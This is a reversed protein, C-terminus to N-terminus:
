AAAARVATVVTALGQELEDESITLAPVIRLVEDHPGCTLVVVGDDLARRQAQTATEGDALEIGIMLGRGRVDVVGPVAHLEAALSARAAAGLAGARPVLGDDDLVDLTALGAACSVPNGGFTTGHSGPAWRAFLDAGALIGGLPLGSAIGKAFLLVDPAVGFGEAAWMTGTRGVGCQVEDFVLLIGHEDCRDRLGRLWAVPPVVYGGEGLVPEVVVAAVSSPPLQAHLIEDLGALAAATAAGESGHRLVSPYPAHAVSPLLPEYGTRYKAKSTTLSTGGITRGHFAGRFAVIGPRGTVRRALKIAGDVAEAGTNCFFVQPDRLFPASAALREALRVNVTHHAVVSTHLLAGAQDRIAAVIRPHCHGTATVGIGSSLDLWRQGDVDVIWSGDGSAVVLDTIRSLTPALADTDRDLWETTRPGTAATTASSM